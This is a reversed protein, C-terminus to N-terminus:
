PFCIHTHTKKTGKNRLHTVTITMTISERRLESTPMFDPVIRKSQLNVM